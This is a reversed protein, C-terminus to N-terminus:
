ITFGKRSLTVDYKRLNKVKDKHKLTVVEEGKSM